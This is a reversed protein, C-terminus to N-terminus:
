ETPGAAVFSPDADRLWTWVDPVLSPDISHGNSGAEYKKFYSTPAFGNDTLVKKMAISYAQPVVKDGPNHIIYYPIKRTVKKAMKEYVACSNGYNDEASICGGAFTAAGRFQNAHLLGYGQTFFSGGSHGSLFVRDLDVNYQKQITAILEQVWADDRSEDFCLFPDGNPNLEPCEAGEPTVAIFTEKEATPKWVYTVEDKVGAPAPRWGHFHIVLPVGTEGTYGSPVFAAYTRDKGEFPLTATYTGKKGGSGGSDHRPCASPDPEASQGDASCKYGVNGVCVSAGCAADVTGHAVAVGACACAAGPESPSAGSTTTSTSSSCALLAVLATLAFPLCVRLKM